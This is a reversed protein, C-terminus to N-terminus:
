PQGEAKPPAPMPMWHTPKNWKSKAIDNERLDTRWGVGRVWWYGTMRRAQGNYPWCWLDIVTGDKPATEIPQWDTM